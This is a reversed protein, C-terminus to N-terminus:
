IKRLQEIEGSQIISIGQDNKIRLGGSPDIGMLIGKIVQNKRHCSIVDGKFALLTEFYPILSAFSMQLATQFHSIIQNRITKLDWNRGTIEVLSTAPQDTEVPANVNMGIGMVIGVRDDLSVTEAMTGSLKKGDVILDNPWKIKVSVDEELLFQATAYALLQALNPILPHGPELTFFLSLHLNGKKSTWKRAYRGRGATQTDATIGTLKEPDFEKAHTKTWTSTSDITSFHLLQVEM